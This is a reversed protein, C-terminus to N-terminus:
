AGEMQAPARAPQDHHAIPELDGASLTPMDGTVSLAWATQSRTVEAGQAIRDLVRHATASEIVRTRQSQGPQRPFLKM